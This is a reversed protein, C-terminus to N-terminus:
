ISVSLAGLGEGISARWYISLPELAREKELRVKLNQAIFVSARSFPPTPRPILAIAEQLLLHMYVNGLHTMLVCIVTSYVIGICSTACEWCPVFLLIM